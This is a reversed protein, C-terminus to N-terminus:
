DDNPTDKAAITKVLRKESTQLIGETESRM